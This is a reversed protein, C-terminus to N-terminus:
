TCSWNNSANWTIFIFCRLIHWNKKYKWHCKLGLIPFDLHRGTRRGNQIESLFYLINPISTSLGELRGFIILIPWGQKHVIKCPKRQSLSKLWRGWGNNLAHAFKRGGNLIVDRCDLVIPLHANVNMRFYKCYGTNLICDLYTCRTTYVRDQKMANSHCFSEMPWHKIIGLIAWVECLSVYDYLRFRLPHFLPFPVTFFLCM